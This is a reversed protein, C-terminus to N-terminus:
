GLKNGFSIASDWIRALSIIKDHESDTETLSGIGKAIFRARELDAPTDVVLSIDKYYEMNAPAYNKINFDNKQQYFYTTVHEKESMDDSNLWAVKLARRAIIETTLGPPYTRPFMTTVLDFNGKLFEDLLKAVLEQDFFPRDGCVRVMPDIEFEECAHVARGLVDNKSGRYVSLGQSMAFEAIADDDSCNSTAVVIKELGRILKVRDCVRGLLSRGSIDILAKGYLRSSDFRSFIIAGPSM